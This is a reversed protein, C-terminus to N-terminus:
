SKTARKNEVIYRNTRRADNDSKSLQANSLRTPDIQNSQM